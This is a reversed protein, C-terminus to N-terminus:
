DDIRPDLRRCTSKVCFALRKTVAGHPRHQDTNPGGDIPILSRESQQAVSAERSTGYKVNNM